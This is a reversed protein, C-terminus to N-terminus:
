NGVVGIVIRTKRWSDLEEKECISQIDWIDDKYGKVEDRIIRSIWTIGYNLRTLDSIQQLTLGLESYLKQIIEAQSLTAKARAGTHSVQRM